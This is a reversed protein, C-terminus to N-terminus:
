HADGCVTLDTDDDTGGHPYSPDAANQAADTTTKILNGPTDDEGFAQVCGSKGDADGGTAVSGNGAGAVSVGTYARGRNDNPADCDDLWVGDFVVQNSGVNQSPVLACAVPGGEAAGVDKSKLQERSNWCETTDDTAGDDAGATTCKQGSVGSSSGDHYVQGSTTEVGITLATGGIDFYSPPAGHQAWALGGFAFAFTAILSAILVARKSM